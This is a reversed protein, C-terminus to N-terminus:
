QQIEWRKLYQDLREELKPRANGYNRTLRKSPRRYHAVCNRMQEIPDMNEKLNNLLDADETNEIPKRRIEDRFVDYQEANRIFKLVDPLRFERFQNLNKYERFTLHFFQNENVSSMQELTPKPSGQLSIKEERLLDFPTRNQYAHLYIISLVRRLKMELDFIEKAREALKTQLLPDEFKVIHFEFDSLKKIFNEIIEENPVIEEPLEVSFGIIRHQVTEEDDVSIGRAREHRLQIWDNVADEDFENQSNELAEALSGTLAQRIDTEPTVRCTLLFEFIM